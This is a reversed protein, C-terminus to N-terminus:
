SFSRLYEFNCSKPHPALVKRKGSAQPKKSPLLLPPLMPSILASQNSVFQKERLFRTRLFHIFTNSLNTNLIYNFVNVGTHSKSIECLYFYTTANVSEGGGGGGGGNCNLSGTSACYYSVLSRVLLAEM